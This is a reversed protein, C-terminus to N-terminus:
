IMSSMDLQGDTNGASVPFSKESTSEIQEGDGAKKKGDDFCALAIEPLIENFRHLTLRRVLWRKELSEDSVKFIDYILDLLKSFEGHEVKESKEIKGMAPALECFRLTLEMPIFTIDFTKGDLVIERKEPVFKDLDLVKM